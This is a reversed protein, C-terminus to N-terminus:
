GVNLSSHILCFFNQNNGKCPTILTEVTLKKNMVLGVIGCFCFWYLICVGLSVEKILVTDPQEELVNEVPILEYFNARPNLMYRTPLNRPWINIGL